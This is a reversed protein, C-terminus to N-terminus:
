SSYDDMAISTALLGLYIFTAYEQCKAELLVTVRIVLPFRDTLVSKLRVVVVLLTCAGRMIRGDDDTPGTGRSRM